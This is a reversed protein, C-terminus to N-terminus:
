QCTKIMLKIVGYWVAAFALVYGKKQNAWDTNLEYIKNRKNYVYTQRFYIIGFLIACVEDSLDLIATVIGYISILVNTLMSFAINREGIIAVKCKRLQWFGLLTLSVGWFVGNNIM